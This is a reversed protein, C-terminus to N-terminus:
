NCCARPCRPPLRSITRPASSSEIWRRGPKASRSSNRAWTEARPLRPPPDNSPAVCVARWSCPFCCEAVGPLRCAASPVARSSPPGAVGPAQRAVRPAWARQVRLRGSGHAARRDRRRLRSGDRFVLRLELGIQQPEVNTLVRPEVRVAASAGSRVCERSPDSNPTGSLRPLPQSAGKETSSARGASTLRGRRFRGPPGFPAGRLCLCLVPLHRPQPPVAGARDRPPPPPPPPVM